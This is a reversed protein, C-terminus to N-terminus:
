DARSGEVERHLRRPLFSMVVQVVVVRGGADREGGAFDSGGEEAAIMDLEGARGLEAAAPGGDAKRGVDVVIARGPRVVLEEDTHAVAIHGAASEGAAIDGNM